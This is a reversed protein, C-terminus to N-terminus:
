HRGGASSVLDQHTLAIYGFPGSLGIPAAIQSNLVLLLATSRSSASPRPAATSSTSAAHKRHFRAAIQAGYHTYIFWGGALFAALLGFVVIAPGWNRQMEMPPDPVVGTDVRNKTELSYEAVLSEEDLGLFRAISRIFSRNFVGGPLQEWQDKELAELFRTSIRTAASIEELSVGRMERERKLHEGFPATSM